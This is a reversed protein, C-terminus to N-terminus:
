VVNTNGINDLANLSICMLCLTFLFYAQILLYSHILLFTGVCVQWTGIGDEGEQRSPSLGCYRYCCQCHLCHCIKRVLYTLILPFGIMQLGNFNMAHISFSASATM